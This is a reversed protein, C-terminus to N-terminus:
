EERIKCSAVLKEFNKILKGCLRKDARKTNLTLECSLLEESDIQKLYLIRHINNGTIEARFEFIEHETPSYDYRVAKGYEKEFVSLVNDSSLDCDIEAATGFYMDSVSEEDDESERYSYGQYIEATGYDEEDTYRDDQPIEFSVKLDSLTEFEFRPVLRKEKQHKNYIKEMGTFSELVANGIDEASSTAGLYILTEDNGGYGNNNELKRTQSVIINGDEYLIVGCLLYNKNFSKYSKYSVAHKMFSDEAREYRTRADVPSKRIHELAELVIQGILQANNLEKVQRYWAMATEVFGISTILPVIIIQNEGKYLDVHYPFSVKRCLKRELGIDSFEKEYEDIRRMTEEYSLEM